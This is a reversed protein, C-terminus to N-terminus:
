EVTVEVIRIDVPPVEREWPRALAFRLTTRGPGRFEVPFSWTAPGGVRGGADSAVQTPEGVTAVSADSSTASWAYGTGASAVVRYDRRGVSEIRRSEGPPPEFGAVPAPHPAACAALALCALVPIRPVSALLNM